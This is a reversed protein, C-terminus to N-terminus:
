KGDEQQPRGAGDKDLIAANTPEVISNSPLDSERDVDQKFTFIHRQYKGDAYDFSQCQIMDGSERHYYETMMTHGPDSFTSSIAWRKDSVSSKMAENFLHRMIHYDDRGSERSFASKTM